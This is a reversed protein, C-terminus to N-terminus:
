RRGQKGTHTRTHSHSHTDRLHTAFTLQRFILTHVDGYWVSTHTCPPSLCRLGSAAKLNGRVDERFDAWDSCQWRGAVPSLGAGCLSSSIQRAAHAHVCVDVCVTARERMDSLNEVKKLISKLRFRGSSMQWTKKKQRKPPSSINGEQNMTLNFHWQKHLSRPRAALQISLVMWMMLYSIITWVIARAKGLPMLLEDASPPLSLKAIIKFLQRSEMIIVVNLFKFARLVGRRNGRVSLRVVIKQCLNFLNKYIFIYINIYYTYYICQYIYIFINTWCHCHFCRLTVSNMLLTTKGAAHSPLTSM